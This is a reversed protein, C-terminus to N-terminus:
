RCSVVVPAGTPSQFLAGDVSDSDPDANGLPRAYAIRAHYREADSFATVGCDTALWASTMLAGEAVHFFGMAHGVEHAVTRPAFAGCPSTCGAIGYNLEIEGPDAGVRARGCLGAGADSFFKVVIQGAQEARADSGHEITGAEFLGGTMQPVSARIASILLDLEAASIDGGTGPKRKDIYFNPARTWRRLAQPADPADFLNRVIARFYSLSFPATDKILDIVIDSRTGVNWKLHARRTVYGSASIEVAILAENSAQSIEWAGDGGAVIERNGAALSFTLRAGGVATGTLTETVRGRLTWQNSPTSPATPTSPAPSGGGGGGCAALVSLLCVVAACGFLRSGVSIRM